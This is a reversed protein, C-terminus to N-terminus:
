FGQSRRYESQREDMEDDYEKQQKKRLEDGFFEFYQDIDKVRNLYQDEQLMEWVQDEFEYDGDLEPIMDDALELFSDKVDQTSSKTSIDSDYAAMINFFREDDVITDIIYDAIKRRDYTQDSEKIIKM